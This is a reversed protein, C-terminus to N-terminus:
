RRSDVLKTLLPGLREMTMVHDPGDHMIAHTPMSPAQADSPSQVISLGGCRKIEKLGETGDIGGGTLVVGIVNVGFTRAASIFLCDAAPRTFHVKPGHDLGFLGSERVILHAKPPAIHVQGPAPRDGEAAYSVKLPTHHGLLGALYGPSSEHTHLVAATAAPFNPALSSLVHRLAQFGGLSGAIVILRSFSAM